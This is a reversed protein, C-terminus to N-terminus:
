AGGRAGTEHSPTVDTNRTDWERAAVRRLHEATGRVIWALTALSVGFIVTWPDLLSAM